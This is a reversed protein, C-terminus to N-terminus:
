SLRNPKTDGPLIDYTSAHVVVFVNIQGPERNGLRSRWDPVFPTGKQGPDPLRSLLPSVGVPVFPAALAWTAPAGKQGPQHLGKKKM